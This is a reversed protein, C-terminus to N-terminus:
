KVPGLRAAGSDNCASIAHGTADRSCAGASTSRQCYTFTPEPVNRPDSLDLGMVVQELNIPAPVMPCLPADPASTPVRFM